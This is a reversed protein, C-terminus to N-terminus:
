TSAGSKVAQKLHDTEFGFFRFSFGAFASIAIASASLFTGRRVTLGNAKDM